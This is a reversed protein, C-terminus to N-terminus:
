SRLWGLVKFYQPLGGNAVSPINMPANANSINHQHAQGPGSTYSGKNVVPTAGSSTVNTFLPTLDVTHTHSAETDTKSGAPWSLASGAVVTTDFGGGMLAAITGNWNPTVVNSTSGDANLCGYTGGDCPHWIGGAPSSPALVIYKSQDNGYFSWGSGNWQLLHAYDTVNVVTGVDHVTLTAAYAALQGQLRPYIGSFYNWFGSVSLYSVTTDTEYYLTNNSPPPTYNSIRHAHTDEVLATNFPNWAPSSGSSFPAQNGYLVNGVAVVGNLQAFPGSSPLVSLRPIGAIQPQAAVGPLGTISLPLQGGPQFQDRVFGAIKLLDNSGLKSDATTQALKANQQTQQVLESLKLLSRRIDIPIAPSLAIAPPKNPM